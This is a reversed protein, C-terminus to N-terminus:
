KDIGPSDNPRGSWGRGSEYAVAGAVLLAGLVVSKAPSYRGSKATAKFVQVREAYSLPRANVMRGYLRSSGGYIRMKRFWDRPSGIELHRVQIDGRYQIARTTFAAIAQHMFVVDGGRMLEPFPGRGSQMLQNLAARRVAMNNTYAYYIEPRHSSFVYAAKASEYDSLMALPASETAFRQSGQVLQVAPDNMAAAIRTLWDPRPACDSDTFAVIEGSSMAVGLNRAAYAGPKSEQLVRVRSFGRVIEASRDTSNNDVFIIECRDSPYEMSRLAEACEGIYAEVNRFPVVISIQM